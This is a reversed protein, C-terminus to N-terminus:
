TLGALALFGATALGLWRHLLGLARRMADGSAERRGLAATVQAHSDNAINRSLQLENAGAVSRLAVFFPIRWIVVRRVRGNAAAGSPAPIAPVARASSAAATSPTSTVPERRSVEATAPRGSVSRSVGCDTVTVLRAWISSKASLSTFVSR